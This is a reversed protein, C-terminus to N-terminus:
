RKSSGLQQTAKFIRQLEFFAPKRVGDQTILGKAHVPPNPRPNGGNWSPRV